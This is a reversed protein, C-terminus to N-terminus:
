THLLLAEFDFAAELALKDGLDVRPHRSIGLDCYTYIIEGVPPVMRM